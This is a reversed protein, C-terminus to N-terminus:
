RWVKSFVLEDGIWPYYLVKDNDSPLNEIIKDMIMKEDVKEDVLYWFNNNQKTQKKQDAMLASVNNRALKLEKNKM